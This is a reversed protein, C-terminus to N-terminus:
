RDFFLKENEYEEKKKIKGLTGNQYELLRENVYDKLTVEKNLPSKRGIHKEVAEYYNFMDIAELRVFYAKTPPIRSKIRTWLSLEVPKRSVTPYIRKQVEHIKIPFTPRPISKKARPFLGSLRTSLM